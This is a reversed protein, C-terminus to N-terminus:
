YENRRTMYQQGAQQLLAAQEAKSASNFV